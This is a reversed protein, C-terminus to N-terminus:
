ARCRENIGYQMFTVEVFMEKWKGGSGPETPPDLIQRFRPGNASGSDIPNDTTRQRIRTQQRVLFVNASRLDMQIQKNRDKDTDVMPEVNTEM